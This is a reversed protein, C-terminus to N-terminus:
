LLLFAGSGLAGDIGVSYKICNLAPAYTMHKVEFDRSKCPNEGKQPAETVAKRPPKQIIKPSKQPEQRHTQKRKEYGKALM